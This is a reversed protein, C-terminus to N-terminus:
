VIERTIQIHLSGERIEIELIQRYKRSMKEAFNDIWDKKKLQGDEMRTLNLSIM